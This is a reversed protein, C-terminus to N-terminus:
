DGRGSGVGRFNLFLRIIAITLLTLYFKCLLHQLFIVYPLYKLFDFSSSVHHIKHCLLFKGANQTQVIEYGPIFFCIM